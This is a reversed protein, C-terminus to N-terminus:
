RGIYWYRDRYHMHCWQIAVTGSGYHM